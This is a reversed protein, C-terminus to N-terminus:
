RCVIISQIMSLILDPFLSVCHNNVKGYQAGADLIAVSEEGDHHSSGNIQAPQSSLDDCKNDDM